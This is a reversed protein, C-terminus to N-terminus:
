TVKPTSRPLWPPPSTALPICGQSQLSPVQTRQEGWEKLLSLPQRNFPDGPALSEIMARTVFVGYIDGYFGLLVPESPKQTVFTDLPNQVWNLHAKKGWAM